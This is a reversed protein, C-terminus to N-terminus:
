VPLGLERSIQKCEWCPEISDPEDRWVKQGAAVRKMEYLRYIGMEKLHERQKATLKQEWKPLKSKKTSM